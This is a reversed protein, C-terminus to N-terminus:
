QTLDVDVGLEEDTDPGGDSSSDMKPPLWEELQRAKSQQEKLSKANEKLVFFYLM